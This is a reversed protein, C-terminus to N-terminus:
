QSKPGQFGTVDLYSKSGVLHLESALIFLYGLYKFHSRFNSQNKVYHSSVKYHQLM